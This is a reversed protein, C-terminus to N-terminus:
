FQASVSIGAVGTNLGWAGAWVPGFLKHEVAVGFAGRGQNFDFGGLAGVRWKPEYPQIRPAEPHELVPVDSPLDFTTVITEKPGEVVKTQTCKLQKPPAQITVTRIREVLETRVQKEVSSRGWAFGIVFVAVTAALCLLLLTGDKM